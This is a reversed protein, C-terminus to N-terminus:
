HIKSGNNPGAHLWCAVRHEASINLLPPAQTCASHEEACRGRFPCGAPAHIPDPVSGPIAPFPRGAPTEPGPASALLGQTYPHLPADFIAAVPGSEVVRGLYMVVVQDAMEAVIGFDHTILLIASSHRMQMDRLVELVQAQITVDLATTPEDAILLRPHCALAMAIMVRQCMGGSLQHPYEGMRREPAAIGVQRLLEIAETRAQAADYGLHLRLVEVIQAGITHVPTLSLRPEQFIMAVEKGRVRRLEEGEPKMGLLDILSNDLMLRISGGLIRGPPDVLGLVARATVSKGCGSEGLLALTKGLPIDFSVERVAQVEGRESAFSVSLDRIELINDGM